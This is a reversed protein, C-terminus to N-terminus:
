KIKVVFDSLKAPRKTVRCPRTKVPTSVSPSGPIDSTSSTPKETPDRNLGQEETGTQDRDLGQQETVDVMDREYYPRM